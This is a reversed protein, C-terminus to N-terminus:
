TDWDKQLILYYKKRGESFITNWTGFVGGGGQGDDRQIDVNCVNGNLYVSHIIGTYPSDIEVTGGNMCCKVKEGIKLDSLNNIPYWQPILKNM